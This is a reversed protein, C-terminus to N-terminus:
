TVGGVTVGYLVVDGTTKTGGAAIAMHKDGGASRDDVRGAYRAVAYGPASGLSSRDSRMNLSAATSGQVVTVGDGRDSSIANARPSDSGNYHARLQLDATVATPKYLVGIERTGESVLRYNGTRYEYPIATGGQDAAGASHKLVQGAGGCVQTIKGGLAVKAAATVSQAYTEEWWAKTALCFCLARTPYTSDTSKCYYFRLVRDNPNVSLHFYKSKSFDITGDRWYNDVPVSLTEQQNGDFAYLGYSDAAYAVGEHVDVCRATLAGRYAVLIMSADILPQSVYQLRYVHRSQFVLLMSGFPVIAVIADADAANEQLVLEYAEPASEPEDIESHWLSNPKEGTSDVSYWARDQFMCAQSVRELPPDFRRANLQGNPMIVPMIGFDARTPDFLDDDSLTDSYTTPFVGDVKSLSAVRYLVLEQDATTRWLEIKTVRAEAANNTWTWTLGGSTATIEAMESISSARPGNNKDPTADIYRLCCKYTGTLSGSVTAIARAETGEIVATPPASYAGGSLVTVGSLTGGSVAALANAFGDTPRFGVAPPALYGTGANVITVSSVAYTAAASVSGGSGVTITTSGGTTSSVTTASVLAVRPTTVAGTGANRIDVGVLVKRTADIRVDAVAGTLGDLTCTAAAGTGTAHNFTITPPTTYGAWGSLLTVANVVGGSVSCTASASGGAVTGFSITPAVTGYNTGGSTVTVSVVGGGVICTPAMTYGTGISVVSMQSLTGAVGVALTAGSGVGGSFTISPASAYGDGRYDLTIGVVRADVVRARGRAHLSSGTTIGGGSFTVTPASFYGAGGNVIAVSRVQSATATTLSTVTPAATPKSIGIPQLYDTEGLWRFGRGKGDVGYLDNFRGRFMSVVNTGGYSLVTATAAAGTGSGGSFAVSPASTYGKGPSTILVADVATGALQAVATAGTGGGGTLSVTPASLYGTGGTGVTIRVIGSDLRM